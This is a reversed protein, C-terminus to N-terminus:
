EGAMLINPEPAEQMVALLEAKRDHFMAIAMARHTQEDDGDVDTPWGDKDMKAKWTRWLSELSVVTYVDVLDNRLADLQRKMEASSIRKEVKPAAKAAANGDDDEPAIGSISEVGIRKAYTTASKFGHMNNKDLILPVPCEIFTRSKGHVLRTVMCMGLEPRHDIFHYFALGNNAFPARVAEVVDALDAYTSPKGDPKKFAANTSGKILRGMEIQAAGLATDVNTHEIIDTM